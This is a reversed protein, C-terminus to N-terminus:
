ILCHAGGDVAISAGTLYSAPTSALFVAVAAIDDPEGFRGLPIEGLTQSRVSDISQGTAQAKASLQAGLRQTEVAGPNIVNVRVGSSAWAKAFGASVLILAANAAGGPMHTLKAVKGGMGVINVVVGTGRAAMQPVLVDMALVCPLYKDQMAALWRGSDNSQAGHHRAAGASNILIDIPGLTREISAIAAEIADPDRLDVSEAYVELGERRCSAVAEDLSQRDRAAIAVRVGERALARTCALGIGKSGGTVLATKGNLGLDL